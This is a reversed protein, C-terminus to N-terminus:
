TPPVTWYSKPIASLPASLNREYAIEWLTDGSQVIYTQARVVSLPAGELGAVINRRSWAMDAMALRSRVAHGAVSPISIHRGLPASHAWRRRPGNLPDKRWRCVREFASM